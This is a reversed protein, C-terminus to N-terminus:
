KSLDNSLYSLMEKAIAYVSEPEIMNMCKHHKLPCENLGHIDCPRCKLGEYEVVHSNKSMPYFGFEPITPGFVTIIPTDTLYAFHTPASDNSISLKAKSLLALTDEISLKGALNLCNAKQSITESIEYESEAGNIIVSHGASILLKVLSIYKEVGWMKTKWVSGPFIVIYDTIGNKKLISAIKSKSTDNIEILNKNLIIDNSELNNFETFVSLLEFNRWLEHKHFKYDVLYKYLFRFASNKFGISVNPKTLFVLLSSRFSRHPSIILDYKEEKLLNSFIKLGVLGKHKKRKDFVIVKDISPSSNAINQGLPTTIFHLKVNPHYQKILTTLHLTLAIDGLFATQNIGIKSFDYISLLKKM